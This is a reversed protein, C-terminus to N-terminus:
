AHFVIGDVLVGNESIEILVEKRGGGAREMAPRYIRKMFDDPTPYFVHIEPHARYYADTLPRGQYTVIVRPAPHMRSYSPNLPHIRDNCGSPLSPNGDGARWPYANAPFFTEAGESIKM